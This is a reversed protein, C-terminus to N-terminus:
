ARHLAARMRKFNEIAKNLADGVAAADEDHWDTGDDNGFTEDMWALLMQGDSLDLPIVDSLAERGQQPVHENQSAKEVPQTSKDIADAQLEGDDPAWGECDCVYRRLSHSRNRDFGHPADPHTSCAPEDSLAEREQQVARRASAAGMMYAITLGDNDPEPQAPPVPLSANNTM